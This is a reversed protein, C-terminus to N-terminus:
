KYRGRRTNILFFVFQKPCLLNDAGCPQQIGLDRDTRHLPLDVIQDSFHILLNCFLILNQYGCQCFSHGLVQGVIHALHTDTDFVQVGIDIGQLTRLDDPIHTQIYKIYEHANVKQPLPQINGLDCQHRDQIRIFFAEQTGAGRQDLRDAPCRTVCLPMDDHVCIGYCIGHPCGHILRLAAAFYLHLVILLM